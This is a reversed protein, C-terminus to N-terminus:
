VLMYTTSCYLIDASSCTFSYSCTMYSDVNSTVSLWVQVRRRLVFRPSQESSVFGLTSRRTQVRGWELTPTPSSCPHHLSLCHYIRMERSWFTPLDTTNRTRAASAKGRSQQQVCGSGSDEAPSSHACVTPIAKQETEAKMHFHFCQPCKDTDTASHTYTKLTTSTVHVIFCCPSQNSLRRGKGDWKGRGTKSRKIREKTGWLWKAERWKDDDGCSSKGSSGSNVMLYLSSLGQNLM